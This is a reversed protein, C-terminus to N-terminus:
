NNVHLTIIDDNKIELQELTKNKDIEKNNVYFCNDKKNYQPYQEYLEAEIKSFNETNKTILPFDIESPESNFKISILKEGKSFKNFKRFLKIENEYEILKKAEENLEVNKNKEAKIKSELDKELENIKNKNISNDNM